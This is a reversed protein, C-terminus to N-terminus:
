LDFIKIGDEVFKSDRDRVGLKALGAMAENSKDAFAKAARNQAAKGIGEQEESRIGFTGSDSIRFASIFKSPVQSGQLAM